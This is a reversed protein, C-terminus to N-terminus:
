HSKTQLDSPRLPIYSILNQSSYSHRYKPPDPVITMVQLSHSHYNGHTMFLFLRLCSHEPVSATRIQVAYKGHAYVGKSRILSRFAQLEGDALVSPLHINDPLGSSHIVPALHETFAWVPDNAATIMAPCMAACQLPM